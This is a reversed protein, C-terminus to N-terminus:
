RKRHRRRRTGKRKALLWIIIIALIILIIVLLYISPTDLQVNSQTNPQQNSTDYQSGGQCKVPYPSYGGDCTVYANINTAMLLFILLLFLSIRYKEM